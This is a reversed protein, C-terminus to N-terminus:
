LKALTRVTYNGTRGNGTNTTAALLRISSGSIDASLTVGPDGILGSVIDIEELGSAGDCVILFLGSKLKLTGSELFQYEVFITGISAKEFTAVVQGSANNLLSASFAQSSSSKRQSVAM